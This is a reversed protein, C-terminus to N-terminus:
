RVTGGRPEDTLVITCSQVGLARAAAGAVADVQGGSGIDALAARALETLLDADRRRAEAEERQRRSGAALQGTVLATAAFVGLSVWNRSDAITLTHVPPLFFYNLALVSALSSVLGAGSGFAGSVLLVLLQYCVAVSLIEATSSLGSLSATVAAVGVM